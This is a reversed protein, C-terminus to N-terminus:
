DREWAVGSIDTGIKRGCSCSLIQSHSHQLHFPIKVHYHVYMAEYRYKEHLWVRALLTLGDGGHDLYLWIAIQPKAIM